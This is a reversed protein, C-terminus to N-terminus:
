RPAGVDYCAEYLEAVRAWPYARVAERGARGLREATARDRMLLELARGLAATDEPDVVLGTVGDAVLGAPGGRSTVILPAAGRWAELVVLGFAERRSPVVVVAASAMCDVVQEPDLRGPLSVRDGVGLQEIRERLPDALAGDGGIVLRSEEPLDAVAFAELLLDFGKMRELRGVAFVTDAPLPHRHETVDDLDIGNPVVRGGDFGFRTRLDDLVFQSCGTVVAASGLARRLGARLLASEEFVGHDDAFTEGHTSIVLPTRTVRGLALAYLGNPGFCQVHLVDPRFRRFVRWWAVAAAPAASVFRLLAGTSRAPLPTPLYHVEIGDVVQVGLHEGRDVTWVVVQHGRDALERAVSRVHQEVGGPYPVYSSSVLAIRRASRGTIVTEHVV